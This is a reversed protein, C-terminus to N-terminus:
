FDVDKWGRSLWFSCLASNQVKIDIYIKTKAWKTLDLWIENSTKPSKEHIKTNKYSCWDSKYFHWFTDLSSLLYISPKYFPPYIYISIIINRYFCEVTDKQHLINISVLSLLILLPDITNLKKQQM